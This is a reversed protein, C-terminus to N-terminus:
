NGTVDLKVLDSVNVAARLAENFRKEAKEMTKFTGSFQNTIRDVVAFSHGNAYPKNFRVLNIHGDEFNAYKVLPSNWTRSPLQM